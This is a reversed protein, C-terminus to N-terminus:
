DPDPTAIVLRDAERFFASFEKVPIFPAQQSLAAYKAPLDFYYIRHLQAIFMQYIAWQNPLCVETVGFDPKANTEALCVLVGKFRGVGFVGDLIRQHAWVQIVRERTSTKVPLHIRSKTSGLDFIFDTPLSKDMDLSLVQIENRPNTGLRRAVLHGILIEFFTGPTKQDQTKTLDASCCYAMACSYLVRNLQAEDIRSVDCSLVDGAHARALDVDFLAENVPRSKKAKSSTFSFYQKESGDYRLNRRKLRGVLDLGREVVALLAESVAEGMLDAEAAIKLLEYAAHVRAASPQPM